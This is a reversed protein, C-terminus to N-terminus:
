FFKLTNLINKYENYESLSVSSDMFSSYVIFAYNNKYILIRLYNLKDGIINNITIKQGTLGYVFPNSSLFSNIEKGRYVSISFVTEQEKNVGWEKKLNYAGNDTEWISYKKNVSYYQPYRFEFGYEENRYTKWDATDIETTTATEQIGTGVPIVNTNTPKKICASVVIGLALILLTLITLKLKSM